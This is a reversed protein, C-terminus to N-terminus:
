VRERCSARGIESLEGFSVTRTIERGDTVLIAPDNPRQRDSVEVGINVREPLSWRHSSRLEDYTLHAGTVGM